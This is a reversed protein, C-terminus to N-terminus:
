VAPEDPVTVSETITILLPPHLVEEPFLSTDIVPAGFAVILVVEDTHPPDDL